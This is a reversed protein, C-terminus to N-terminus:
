ELERPVVFDTLRATGRGLRRWPRDGTDLTVLAATPFGQRVRAVMSAPGGALLLTLEEMGPNHGVVLVAATRSPVARLRELLARAEAGYLADEVLLSATGPLAPALLELTERTRRASSCLVLEPAVGHERLHAAVRRAARAGRPSLRREHDPVDDDWSSKAHRLLHLLAM